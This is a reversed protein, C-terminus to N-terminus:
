KHIEGSFHTNQFSAQSYPKPRPSSFGYIWKRIQLASLWSAVDGCARNYKHVATDWWSLALFLSALIKFIKVMFELSMCKEESDLGGLGKERLNTAACIIFHAYHLRCGLVSQSHKPPLKGFPRWCHVEARWKQLQGDQQFLVNRFLFSTRCFSEKTSTAAQKIKSKLAASIGKSFVPEKEHKLEREEM